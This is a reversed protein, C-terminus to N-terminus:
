MGAYIKAGATLYDFLGPTYSQQQGQTGSTLGAGGMMAALGTRPANQYGQYQAKAADILSQMAAQQM